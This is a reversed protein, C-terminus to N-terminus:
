PNDNYYVGGAQYSENVKELVSAKELETISPAHSDSSVRGELKFPNAQFMMGILEKRLQGGFTQNLEKVVVEPLWIPLAYPSITSHSPRALFRESGGTPLLHILYACM